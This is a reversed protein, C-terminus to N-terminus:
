NSVNKPASNRPVKGTMTMSGVVKEMVVPVRTGMVTVPNGGM